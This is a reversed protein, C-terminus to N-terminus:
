TVSIFFRVQVTIQADSAAIEDHIGLDIWDPLGWHIGERLEKAANRFYGKMIESLRNLMSFYGDGASNDLTLDESFQHLIPKPFTNSIYEAVKVTNITHLPPPEVNADEHALVDEAMLILWSSFTEFSARELTLHHLIEYARQFINNQLTLAEEIAEADLPLM